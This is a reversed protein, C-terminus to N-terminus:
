QGSVEEGVALHLPTTVRIGVGVTPVSRTIPMWVASNLRVASGIRRVANSRDQQDAPGASIAGESVVVDDVGGPSGSDMDARTPGPNVAARVSRPGPRHGPGPGTPFSAEDFM